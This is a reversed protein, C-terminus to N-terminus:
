FRESARPKRSCGPRTTVQPATPRTPSCCAASTVTPVNRAATQVALVKAGAPRHRDTTSVTSGIWRAIPPWAQLLTGDVSFHESSLLPKVEPAALLLELFKAMFEENLLWDRIKTYVCDAQPWVHDPALGFLLNYDLQAILM